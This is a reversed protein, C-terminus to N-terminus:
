ILSWYICYFLRGLLSGLLAGIMGGIVVFNVNFRAKVTDLKEQEDKYKDLDVRTWDQDEDGVAVDDIGAAGGRNGRRQRQWNRRARVDEDKLGADVRSMPDHLDIGGGGRGGRGGMMFMKIQKITNNLYSGLLGTSLPPSEDHSIKKNKRFLESIVALTYISLIGPPLHEFTLFINDCYSGFLVKKYIWV